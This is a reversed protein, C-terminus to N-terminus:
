PPGAGRLYPSIWHSQEKGSALVSFQEWSGFDMTAIDRLQSAQHPTTPYYILAIYGGRRLSNGGERLPGSSVLHAPSLSLPLPFTSRIAATTALFISSSSLLLAPSRTSMRPSELPCMRTIFATSSRAVYPNSSLLSLSPFFTHTM